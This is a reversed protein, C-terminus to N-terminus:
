PRNDRNSFGRGSTSSTANTSNTSQTATDGGPVSAVGGQSFSQIRVPTSEALPNVQVSTVGSNLSSTGFSTTGSQTPNPYFPTTGSQLQTGPGPVFPTVSQASCVSTVLVSAATVACAATVWNRISM